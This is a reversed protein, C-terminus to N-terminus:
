PAKESEPRGGRTLYGQRARVEVTGLRAKAAPTLELRLARFEGPSAGEEQPTFALSYRNRLHDVLRGLQPRIQTSTTRLLEGGTLAIFPELRMQRRYLDRGEPNQQFIRETRSLAGEVVLGCVMAGSLLIERAVEREELGVFRYEWAINDTLVLIVKRGTWKGAGSLHRAAAVLGQYLSTGKGMGPTRELQGIRDAVARRNRTFDQLVQTESSFALLAVEDAEKLRSIADLAGERIQSLVPSVSGSLDLLLVVSLTLRDQSFHSIPLIEERDRLLFDSLQLGRVM